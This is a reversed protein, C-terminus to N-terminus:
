SNLFGLDEQEKRWIIGSESMKAQTLLPFAGKLDSKRPCFNRDDYNSRRDLATDKIIKGM